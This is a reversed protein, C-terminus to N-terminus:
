RRRQRLGEALHTRGDASLEGIAMSLSEDFRAASEHMREQMAQLAAETAVPDYPTRRVSEAVNDRAEDLKQRGLEYWPRERAMAARFSDADKPDLGHAIRQVLTDFGPPGPPGGGQHPWVFPAAILAIAFVNLGLSFWLLRSRWPELLRFKM